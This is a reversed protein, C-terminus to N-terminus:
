ILAIKLVETLRDVLIVKLERRLERPIEELDKKNPRPLIMVGVKERHAALFKEKIGGVPLVNGSLTIEGTMAISKSVPRGTCASVLASTLTVGASPGDKPIAGEPIHIHFDHTSFFDQPIGYTNAHARTYSLAAQASEKMVDGMQGTLILAGKGDMAQAEVYLIEGGVPTWALGTAVGVQNRHLHEGPLIRLPGLYRHISAPNLLVAKRNGMAYKMAVKRCVAAIERELNRLGAEKTYGRIIRTIVEDPFVIDEPSLGHAELQKPILHRKAIQLKEVETYGSLAIVEMRDRFAPQITDLVNATTVFLVDSLDFPVGLYNDRFSDNQEPDLVELLASSPDGRFDAGIKDVEDMVFVPNRTGAQHLSQIIRGPMAGVYTRRHGRIEAEDHVGGLSLHVFKRGLSRAISKGLSTKGTGPPGVFCLIPGKTSKKLKRVALHELIREKIKELGYHDENLIGRAKRLNLNDETRCSWPLGAMWDLYTRLTATEASEPNMRELRRVQVDFENRAEKPMKIEDAKKLYRAVDEALENGEGLESQIAKLQQRLFYERQGKEIEDKAQINIQQQVTLVEIERTLLENIRRLRRVPDLLSLIAQADDIKLTLNSAALDALHGPDSMNSAIVMIEPAITKGLSSTKELAEKVNRMLAETELGATTEPAIEELVRIKAQLYPLGEDWSEVQARAMGQVLVRVAHDPMKLMRIVMGVTGIDYMEGSSPTEVEQVRQTLLLIMRNQTLAQDVAHIAKDLSVVLPLIMYPFTVVDRLPLVPLQEPILIQDDQLTGTEKKATDEKLDAPAM